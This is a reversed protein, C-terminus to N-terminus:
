QFCIFSYPNLNLDMERMLSYYANFKKKDNSVAKKSSLGRKLTNIRLTVSSYILRQSILPAKKDTGNEVTM